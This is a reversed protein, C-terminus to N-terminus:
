DDLLLLEMVKEYVLESKRNWADCIQVAQERSVVNLQLDMLLTGREKIHASVMYEGRKSPYYDAHIDLERRLAYKQEALYDMIDKKIAPPIKNEFMSLAEKGLSGLHYGTSNRVSEGIIFEKQALDNLSQQFSFYSTYGRTIFFESLQGTTLPFELNDLIYLIMLKYLTFITENM